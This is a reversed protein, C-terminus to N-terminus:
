ICPPFQRELIFGRAASITKSLFERYALAGIKKPPTPPAGYKGNNGQESPSAQEHGSGRAGARREARFTRALEGMGGEAQDEAAGACLESLTM